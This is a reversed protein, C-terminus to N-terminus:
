ATAVAYFFTRTRAGEIDEINQTEETCLMRETTKASCQVRTDAFFTAGKKRKITNKRTETVAEKKHHCLLLHASFNSILSEYHHKLKQVTETQM